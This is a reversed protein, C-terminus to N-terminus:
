YTKQTSQPFVLNSVMNQFILACSPPSNASSLFLHAEKACKSGNENEYIQSHSLDLMISYYKSHLFPATNNTPHHFSEPSIQLKKNFSFSIFFRVKHIFFEHSYIIAFKIAYTICFHQSLKLAM